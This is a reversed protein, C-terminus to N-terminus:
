KIEILRNFFLTDSERNWTLILTKEDVHIINHGSVLCGFELCFGQNTMYYEYKKVNNFDNNTYEYASGENNINLTFSNEESLDRGLWYITDYKSKNKDLKWWGILLNRLSDQKLYEKVISDPNKSNLKKYEFLFGYKDKFLLVSDNYFIQSKYQRIEGYILTDNGSLKGKLILSGGDFRSFKYFEGNDLFILRLDNINDYCTTKWEGILHTKETKTKIPRKVLSCANSFLIFYATIILLILRYKEMRKLYGNESEETEQNRNVSVM